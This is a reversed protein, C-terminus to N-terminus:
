LPHYDEIIYPNLKNTIDSIKYALRQAKYNSNYEGEYWVIGSAEELLEFAEILDPLANIAEVILQADTFGRANECSCVLDVPIFGDGDQILGSAQEETDPNMATGLHWDNSKEGTMEYCWPTPTARDLLEKLRKIM